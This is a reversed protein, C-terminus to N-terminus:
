SGQVSGRLLLDREPFASILSVILHFYDVKGTASIM